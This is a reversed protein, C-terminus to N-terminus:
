AFVLAQEEESLLRCSGEPLMDDLELGGISLRKLWLVKRDCVGFMRKIQHYKGEQIEIEALTSGAPFSLRYNASIEALQAEPLPRLRAPQCLEGSALSTGSAFLQIHEPLVAGDVVAQYRKWVHRRPSLMRHAYDGDDTILVFGVTDRDLRGAPFLGKRRMSDPLLDLVTPAKPDRSVCLIGAPKNLMIYLHRRTDVPRGSATIVTEPGVKESPLRLPQGNVTVRGSRILRVAESRPINLYTAICKDLRETM